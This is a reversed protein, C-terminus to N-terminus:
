RHDWFLWFPLLRGDTHAPRVQDMTIISASHNRKSIADAPPALHHRQADDNHAHQHEQVLQRQAPSREVREDLLPTSHRPPHQWGQRGVRAHRMLRQQRQEGALENM